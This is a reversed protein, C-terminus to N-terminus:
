CWSAGCDVVFCGTQAWGSATCEWTSHIEDAEAFDFCTRSETAPIDADPLSVSCTHCTPSVFEAPCDFSPPPPACATTNCAQSTAPKPATCNGDAVVAGDQDRVCTVSRTQTGGGCTVSCTGWSGTQWSYTANCVGSTSTPGTFTGDNCTYTESRSFGATVTRTESDNAATLTQIVSCITVNTDPCPQPGCAGSQATLEWAGLNCQYDRQYLGSDFSLSATSGASASNLTRTESCFTEDQNPCNAGENTTECSGTEGTEVWGGNSCTFDASYDANFVLTQVETNSAATLSRSVDCRSLTAAPCENVAVEPMDVCGDGQINSLMDVSNCAIINDVKDSLENLLKDIEDMLPAQSELHSDINIKQSGPDTVIARQQALAAFPMFGVLLLALSALWLKNKQNHQM